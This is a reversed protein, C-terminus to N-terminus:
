RKKFCEILVLIIFGVIPTLALSVITWGLLNRGKRAALAGVLFSLGIYVFLATKEEPM